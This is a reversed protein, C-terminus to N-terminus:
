NPDLNHLINHWTCCAYSSVLTHHNKQAKTPLPSDSLSFHSYFLIKIKNNQKRKGGRGERRKMEEGKM